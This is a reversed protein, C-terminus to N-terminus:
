FDRTNRPEGNIDLDTIGNKVFIQQKEGITLKKGTQEIAM